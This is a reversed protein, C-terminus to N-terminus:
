TSQWKSAFYRWVLIALFIGAGWFFTAAYMSPYGRQLYGVVFYTIGMVMLSLSAVFWFRIPYRGMPLFPLFFSFDSKSVPTRYKSVFLWVLLAIPMAVFLGFCARWDLPTSQPDKFFAGCTFAFILALRFILWFVSRLDM